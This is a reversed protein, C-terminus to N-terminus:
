PTAHRPFVGDPRLMLLRGCECEAVFRGRRMPDPESAAPRLHSGPCPPPRVTPTLVASAVSPNSRVAKATTPRKTVRARYHEFMDRPTSM